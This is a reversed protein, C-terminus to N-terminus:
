PQYTYPSTSIGDNYNTGGITVRCGMFMGGIASYGISCDAGSGKTATVKTVTNTITINKADACYGCGIGAGNNGGTAIITGGTIIINGSEYYSGSGIGAANSGGQATISGTGTITLTYNESYADMLNIQIAANNSSASISNDGMLIITADGACNISGNSINVGNLTVTAGAPITVTKGSATGSLVDGDTATYNGTLTSLDVATGEAYATLSMGPILSLLM